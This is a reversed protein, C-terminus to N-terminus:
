KIYIGTLEMDENYSITFQAKGNKFNTVTVVTAEEGKGVVAEKDFSELKGLDKAIPPWVEKLKETVGADILNKSSKEEIKDYEENYLMKIVNQSTTKLEEENFADSLKNNSCGVLVVCSIAMVLLLKLKKM